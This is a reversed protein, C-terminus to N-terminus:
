PALLTSLRDSLALRWFTIESPDERHLALWRDHIVQAKEHAERESLVRPGQRFAAWQAEIKALAEAHKLRAEASDRTGLTFKEETKGVLARIDDPVVKRFWYIGTKPHRYPRATALPM